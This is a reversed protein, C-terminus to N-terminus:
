RNRGALRVVEIAVVDIWDGARFARSGAGAVECANKGAGGDGSGSPCGRARVQQFVDRRGVRASVGEGSRSEVLDQMVVLAGNAEVRVCVPPQEGGVIEE